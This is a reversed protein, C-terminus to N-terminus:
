MRFGSSALATLLEKQAQKNADSYSKNQGTLNIIRKFKLHTLINVNVTSQDALNVVAM